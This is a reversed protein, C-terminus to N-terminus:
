TLQMPYLSTKASALCTLYWVRYSVIFIQNFVSSFKINCRQNKKILTLNIREMRIVLYSTATHQDKPLSRSKKSLCFLKSSYLYKPTLLIQGQYYLTKHTGATTQLQSSNESESFKSLPLM